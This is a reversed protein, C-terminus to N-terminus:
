VPRIDSRSVTVVCRFPAAFEVAYHEGDSWAHVVTGKAGAPLLAGARELAHSLAVVGLEAIPSAREAIDM